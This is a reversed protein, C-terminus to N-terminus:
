TPLPIRHRTLAETQRRELAALDFDATLEEFLGYWNVKDCNLSSHCRAASKCRGLDSRGYCDGSLVRRAQARGRVAAPWRLM